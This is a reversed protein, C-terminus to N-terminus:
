KCRAPEMVEEPFFSTCPDPSCCCQLRRADVFQVDGDLIVLAEGKYLHSLIGLSFAFCGIVIGIVFAGIAVIAYTM